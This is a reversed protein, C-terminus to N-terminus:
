HTRTIENGFEDLVVWDGNVNDLAIEYKRLDCYVELQEVPKSSPFCGLLLLLSKAEKKTM